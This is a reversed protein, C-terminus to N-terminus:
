SRVVQWPSGTRAPIPKQIRRQNKAATQWLEGIVPWISTAVTQRYLSDAPLQELLRKHATRMNHYPMSPFLHHTAHYRLGVPNIVIALPSDNDMTVSDLMQDVFTGEEGGSAWRHSAVTRLSNMLILVVGTLYVETVFPIPWRRLAICVLVIFVLYLFCGVEQLRIYRQATKTPLPRIYMPDMVLSSARQHIFQRFTPSIWTLPTILGFRIVALPPVWLCQTLYFLIWWPSMSALPLYEGDHETGFMKRRHHDLHSYYTFSPVLFPIGCLLNWAVRFARLQRDPLHVIEHVFMVARYFAACQISFPIAAILLKLGFSELPLFFTLRTLAFCLHGLIITALFDAWYIRENAAFLDRVISRAETLSFALATRDEPHSATPRM